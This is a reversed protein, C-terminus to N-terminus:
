YTSDHQPGRAQFKAHVEAASVIACTVGLPIMGDDNQLENMYYLVASSLESALSGDHVIDTLKQIMDLDGLMPLAGAGSPRMYQRM